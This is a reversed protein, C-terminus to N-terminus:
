TVRESFYLGAGADQLNPREITDMKNRLSRHTNSVQEIFMAPILKLLALSFSFSPSRSLALYICLYVSGSISWGAM